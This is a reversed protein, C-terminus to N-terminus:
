NDEESEDTMIRLVKSKPRPKETVNLSSGDTKAGVSISQKSQKVARIKEELAERRRLRENFAFSSVPPPDVSFYAPALVIEVTLISTPGALPGMLAINLKSGPIASMFAFQIITTVGSVISSASDWAFSGTGQWNKITTDATVFTPWNVVLSSAGSGIGWAIVITGTFAQNFTMTSGIGSLNNTITYPYGGFVTPTATTNGFPFQSASGFSGAVNFDLSSNYLSLYNLVNSQGVPNMFEIEYDIWLEGITQNSISAGETCVYLNLVDYTKIDGDPLASSRIFYENYSRLFKEPVVVNFQIWPQSGATYQYTLAEAKNEPPPDQPNFDPVFFVKGTTSTGCLVEYRFRLKRFRYREYNPAITALWPFTIVIGPNVQYQQVSFPVQQNIDAIYESHMVISSKGSSNILPETTVLTRGSSSPAALTRGIGANMFGGQNSFNLFSYTDKKGKKSTRKRPKTKKPASNSNNKSRNM